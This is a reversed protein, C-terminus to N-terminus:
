SFSEILYKFCEMFVVSPGIIFWNLFFIYLLATPILDAKESNSMEKNKKFDIDGYLWNGILPIAIGMLIMVVIRIFVDM